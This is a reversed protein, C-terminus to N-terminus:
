FKYSVELGVTRPTGPTVFNFTLGLPPPVNLVVADVNYDEDLLNRSFLTFRWNPDELSLRLNVLDLDDRQTGRTNATDFWMEGVQTWDVRAVGEFLYPLDARYEAGLQLSHKPTFPMNRGVTAPEENNRKIESEIIGAGGFVSFSETARWNFDFEAGRIENEQVISIVRALSIPFFQFYHANEVETYFAAANFRLDGGLLSGKVGAEFSRSTEPGFDDQVTTDTKQDITLIANRSGLPNFGGSRFGEGYAAYATWDPNIKYRLSVRPQVRDFSATRRAGLVAAPGAVTNTNIREEEDYRLALSLELADNIDYAAQGFVAWAENDNDGGTGQVGAQGTALRPARRVTTGTGVDGTLLLIDRQFDIFYGGVIYRFRADDKSTFRVEVSTDDQNREQYQAGDRDTPGYGEFLAPNAFFDTAAPVGPGPPGLLGFLALDAAGEGGMSEELNNYAVFGSLTGADLEWQLRASLGYREQDNFSKLNGVFPISTNSTDVGTTFGPTFSLQNHFNFSFGDVEGYNGSIDLEVNPALEFIARGRVVLEEYPDEKENRTVNDFYGERDTYNVTLRGYAKDKIIPGSIFGGVNAEEGEFEYRAQAMGEVENGPKQTAILVAGGIANRGYISGIPGKIVEIQRIDVLEQNFANPNPILVNDVLYAFPPETDRPQIVGRIHVQTEGVNTTQIFTVNPTLAIFDAPRDIGASEITRANFANVAIPADKLSEARQRATVVIEESEVSAGAQGQAFAPTAIGAMGIALAMALASVGLKLSQAMRRASKMRKAM